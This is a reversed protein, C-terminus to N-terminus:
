AIELILWITYIISDNKQFFTENFFSSDICNKFKILNHIYDIWKKPFFLRM